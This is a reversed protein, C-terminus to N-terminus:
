VFGRTKLVGFQSERYDLLESLRAKFYAVRKEDTKQKAFEKGRELTRAQQRFRDSTMRSGAPHIPIGEMFEAIENFDLYSDNLTVLMQIEAATLGLYLATDIYPNGHYPIRPIDEHLQKDTLSLTWPFGISPVLYYAGIDLSGHTCFHMWDRMMQDIAWTEQFVREERILEQCAAQFEPIHRLRPPLRSRLTGDFWLIRPFTSLQQLEGAESQDAKQNVLLYKYYTLKSLM